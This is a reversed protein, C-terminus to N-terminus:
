KYMCVCVCVCVCECVCVCLWGVCVCLSFLVFLHSVVGVSNISALLFLNVVELCGSLCAYLTVWRM